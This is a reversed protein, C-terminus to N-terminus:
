RPQRPRRDSDRRPGSFRTLGFGWKPLQNWVRMSSSDRSEFAPRAKGALTDRPGQFANLIARTGTKPERPWNPALVARIKRQIYGLTREADTEEVAAGPIRQKQRQRVPLTPRM